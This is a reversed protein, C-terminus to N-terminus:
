TLGWLSGLDQLIALAARGYPDKVRQLDTLTMNQLGHGITMSQSTAENSATSIVGPVFNNVGFAQRLTSFYVQGSPDQQFQILYSAGWNYTALTFLKPSITNLYDPIWLQAYELATPFGADDDPMVDVSIGVTSRCFAIFGALTPSSDM